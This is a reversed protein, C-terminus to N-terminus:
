QASKALYQIFNQFKTTDYANAEGGGLGWVCVIGLENCLKREPTNRSGISGGNGFVNPKLRSLAECVTGDSDNVAMVSSIGKIALLMEKREDWPMFVVGHKKQLWADSNLIIVINDAFHKAANILRIHGPHIPDYGGSLAITQKALLDTM